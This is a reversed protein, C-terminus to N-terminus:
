QADTGSATPSSKVGDPAPRVYDAPYSRAKFGIPLTELRSDQPIFYPLQMRDIDGPLYRALEARNAADSPESALHSNSSAGVAGTFYVKDQGRAMVQYTLLARAELITRGTDHPVRNGPTPPSMVKILRSVGEEFNLKLITPQDAAVTINDESLRATVADLVLTRMFDVDGGVGQLGLELSVAQGPRWVAPMKSDAAAALSKRIAAMPLTIVEVSQRGFRHMLFFREDDLFIGHVEDIGTYERMWVCRKTRRDVLANGAIMWCSGDPSVNFTSYNAPGKQPIDTLPIVDIVNGGTDWVVIRPQLEAFYGALERGDASFQLGEVFHYPNPSEVHPAKDQRSGPMAFPPPAAILVSKGSEINYVELTKDSAVALYRGDPTTATQNSKNIDCNFRRVQKGSPVDYVEFGVRSKDAGSSGVLLRQGTAFRLLSVRAGTDGGPLEFVKAGTDTDYVTAEDKSGDASNVAGRADRADGVALYKGDPSLAAAAVTYNGKPLNLPAGAPALTKLDWLTTGTVLKAAPESIVVLDYRNKIAIATAQGASPFEGGEPARSAIKAPPAAMLQSATLLAFATLFLTRARTLTNGKM